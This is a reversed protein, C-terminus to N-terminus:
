MRPTELVPTKQPEAGTPPTAPQFPALAKFDNPFCAALQPYNKTFEQFEQPTPANNGVLKLAILAAAKLAQKDEPHVARGNLSLGSEILTNLAKDLQDNANLIHQNYKVTFFGPQTPSDAQHQHPRMTRLMVRGFDTLESLAAELPSRVMVDKWLLSSFM